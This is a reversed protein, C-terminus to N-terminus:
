KRINKLCIVFVDGLATLRDAKPYYSRAHCTDGLLLILYVLTDKAHTSPDFKDLILNHKGYLIIQNQDSNTRNKGKDFHDFQQFATVGFCILVQM